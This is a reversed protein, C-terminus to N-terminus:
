AAQEYREESSEMEQLLLAREQEGLKRYRRLFHFKHMDDQIDFGRVEATIETKLMLDEVNEMVEPLNLTLIERHIFCLRRFLDNAEYRHPEAKMLPAQLTITV